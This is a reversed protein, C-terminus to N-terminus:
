KISRGCLNWASPIVAPGSVWNGWLFISFGVEGPCSFLDFVYKSKKRYIPFSAQSILKPSKTPNYPPTPLWSVIVMLWEFCMSILIPHTCWNQIKLKSVLKKINALFAGWKGYRNLPKLFIESWIEWFHSLYLRKFHRPLVSFHLFCDNKPIKPFFQTSFHTGVTKIHPQLHIM